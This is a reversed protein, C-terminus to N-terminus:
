RLTWQLFVQLLLVAALMLWSTAALSPGQTEAAASSLQRDLRAMHQQVSRLARSTEQQSRLLPQLLQSMSEQTMKVPKNGGCGRSVRYDSSDSERHLGHGSSDSEEMCLPLHLKKKKDGSKNVSNISNARLHPTKHRTQTQVVFHKEYQYVDNVGDWPRDDAHRYIWDGGSLYDKEFYRPVWETKNLKRDRSNKRQEEEVVYKENTAAQMDSTVVAKSVRGWLRESEYPCQDTLPVTCRNLRRARVEPTPDWFVEKKKDLARDKIYINQDWHGDISALLDSGMLIKGHIRNSAQGSGLFPKLKFDLECKYGTKPCDITVKGGLEMTLTGILIGKCHAYPMTIFYDEGRELFSLTAVGDLFASLSNGYFKSRALISGSINFGDKRNTVHFVSVPPHHSVQEAIYFTRSGTAPHQWCCRFVEGIVPNYPKKLGKPKKYFGSLYWKVVSKMRSYPSEELVAGSLIDAHYYYDSLKDLFSRPELIFTPLVVKSLDMGPRVQKVLMWILGKNEDNVEETQCEDGRQGLEEQKNICYSTEEPPHLVESRPRVDEEFESQTSETDEQESKDEDLGEKLREWVSLSLVGMTRMRTWGGAWVARLSPPHRPPLRTAFDLKNQSMNTGSVCVGGSLCAAVCASCCPIFPTDAPVSPLLKHWNGKGYEQNLHEEKVLIDLRLNNKELELKQRQAVLKRLQVNAVAYHLQEMSVKGHCSGPRAKGSSAGEKSYEESGFLKDTLGQEKLAEVCKPCLQSMESVSRFHDVKTEHENRWAEVNQLFFPLEFVIDDNESTSTFHDTHSTPSSAMSSATTGSSSTEEEYGHVKLMDHSTAAAAPSVHKASAAKKAQIDTMKKMLPAKGPVQETSLTKVPSALGASSAMGKVSLASPMKEVSPAGERFAAGSVSTEKASDNYDTSTQSGSTTSTQSGSLGVDVSSVQRSVTSLQSVSRTTDSQSTQNSSSVAEAEKQSVKKKKKSAGKGQSQRSSKSHSDTEEESGSSSSSSSSSSEGSETSASEATRRTGTSTGGADTGSRSSLATGTEGSASNNSQSETSATTYVSQSDSESDALTCLMDQLIPVPPSHPIVRNKLVSSLQVTKKNEGSGPRARLSYDHIGQEGTQTERDLTYAHQASFWQKHGGKLCSCHIHSQNPRPTVPPSFKLIKQRVKGGEKGQLDQQSGEVISSRISQTRSVDAKSLGISGSYPPNRKTVSASSMLERCEADNVSYSSGASPSASKAPRSGVVFEGSQLSSQRAGSDEEGERTKPKDVKKLHSRRNQLMKEFNKVSTPKDFAGNPGTFNSASYSRTRPLKDQQASQSDVPRVPQHGYSVPSRAGPIPSGRGPFRNTISPSRTGPLKVLGQHQDSPFYQHNNSVPSLRGPLRNTISSITGLQEAVGSYRGCAEDSRLPQPSNVPQHQNIPTFPSIAGSGESNMVAPTAEVDSEKEEKKAQGPTQESAFTVAHANPSTAASSPMSVSRSRPEQFMPLSDVTQTGPSCPSDCSRAKHPSSHEQYAAQLLDMLENLVPSKENTETNGLSNKWGIRRSRSKLDPSEGISSSNEIDASPSGMHFLYSPYKEGDSGKTVSSQLGYEKSVDSKSWSRIRQPKLSSESNSTKKKSDLQDSKVPIKSASGESPPYSKRSRKQPIGPSKRRDSVHVLDASSTKCNPCLLLNKCSRNSHTPSSGGRGGHRKVVNECAEQNAFHRELDSENMSGEHARMSNFSQAFADDGHDNGSRNPGCAEEEGGGGGPGAVGSQPHSRRSPYDVTTDSASDLRTMSRRLLSTCKLALELADMWCKGASESPARFICYSYPLPQVFAGITEGKPGKTAWVSQDLPHFLKFCFGDKKSPRELLQCTNLLVTGVWQSGKHKDSKYLIFLGPKLVCWLKTWSKLTGRVKLWDGLLVVAPDTITSLLEKAAEKKQSRYTRKQAKYADRKSHKDSLSALSPEPTVGRSTVKNPTTPFATPSMQGHKM